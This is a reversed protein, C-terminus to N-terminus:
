PHAPLRGAEREGYEDVDGPDPCRWSSHAVLLNQVKPAASDTTTVRTEARMVSESPGIPDARLTWAVRM